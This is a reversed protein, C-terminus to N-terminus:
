EIAHFKCAQICSRCRMCKEPNIAAPKKKEWAIAEAPCAKLCLGCMKCKEPNVRFHILDICVLAPCRKERIHAEYEDRFYRITSLVPNPATKGLGCHSSEKIHNGLRELLGIDEMTGRGTAIQNLINLMVKLGIRCPVCKGCSEDVSFDTFFRATDVMCTSDNMVVLGGSGMMAGAEDLSDFDVETDLLPAPLCAGSPGGIQVAKFERKEPIGGGIDYVIKRLTTGMPVEILGVNHVAGTLAFVKTGKSGKTGMSAFWSGGNLFISPINAFTEVNNLITPQGWLGAETSRPPKIRPMGRKGELSYMLATSEGCVFAGAGPYIGIDFSFGSGLINNGLLGYSRAQDIAINLRHIALPYEARVYIYGQHSGVGYGCISMGELVAHPDAELISRDMFAGPDGEDGNCIVYKPFSNYRRGEEWKLGTPFGAGGRGRLGSTKVEAVVEEATMSSLVKSLAAYGDRAIYEDINEAHILSRNKLARLVQHQFFPIEKMLSIKKKSTKET